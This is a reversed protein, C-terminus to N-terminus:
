REVLDPKERGSSGCGRQMTMKDPQKGNLSVNNETLVMIDNDCSDTPCIMMTKQGPHTGLV